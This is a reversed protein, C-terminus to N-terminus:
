GGGTGSSIVQQTPHGAPATPATSQARSNNGRQGQITRVVNQVLQTPKPVQFVGMLCLAQHWVKQDQRFQNNQNTESQALLKNASCFEANSVKQDPIPPAANANRGKANRQYARHPPMIVSVASNYILFRDIHSRFALSKFRHHIGKRDDGRRFQIVPERKIVFFVRKSSNQFDTHM